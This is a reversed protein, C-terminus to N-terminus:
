EINSQPTAESEHLQHRVVGDKVVCHYGADREARPERIQVRTDPCQAATVCSIALDAM